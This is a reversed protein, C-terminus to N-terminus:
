GNGAEALSLRLDCVLGSPEFRLKIPSGLKGPVASQILRTGFGQRTPPKPSPGGKEEWRLSVHQCNTDAAWTVKVLGTQVSLSGHKLANTGLEHIALAFGMVHRASITVEPGDLVLRGDIGIAAAVDQIIERLGAEDWSAERLLRNAEALAVLRNEFAKRQEPPANPFSNRALSQVVTLLNSVRHELERALLARQEELEVQSTIEANQEIVIWGVPDTSQRRKWTSVTWIERGDKTTQRLRGSWEGRDHLQAEIFDPEEPFVTKLLEGSARGEAEERTFGYLECCGETWYLIEGEPTRLFVPAHELFERLTAEMGAGSLTRCATTAPGAPGTARLSARERVPIFKGRQLCGSM